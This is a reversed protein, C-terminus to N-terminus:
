IDWDPQKMFTIWHTDARKGSIHGFLPKVKALKLIERTKIQCENWKFVLIGYGELVRFCEAFGAEIDEQWKKGLVGYKLALWSSKGAYELHPPDFVVLKFSGDPFPIDRFDMVIDPNVILTRGDCLTHSECRIDGFVVDPNERDFWFMRSGSAVDLIM